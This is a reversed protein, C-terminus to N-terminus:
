NSELKSIIEFQFRKIFMMMFRKLSNEKPRKKKKSVESVRSSIYKLKKTHTHTKQKSKEVPDTGQHDQYWSSIDKPTDKLISSTDTLHHGNVKSQPKQNKTRTISEEIQKKKKKNQLKSM